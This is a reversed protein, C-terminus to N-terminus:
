GANLQDIVQKHVKRMISGLIFKVIPHAKINIIETITTTGGAQITWIIDLSVSKKIQSQYHVTNNPQSSVVQVSYQNPVKIFGLLTVVEKVWYTDNKKEVQTIYPHLAGFKKFDALTNFANEASTNITYHITM